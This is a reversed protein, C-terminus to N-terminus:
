GDARWRWSRRAGACAPAASSPAGPGARAGESRDPTLVPAVGREPHQSNERLVSPRTATAVAGRRAAGAPVEGRPRSEQVPHREAGGPLVADDRAATKAERRAEDMRGASSLAAIRVVQMFPNRPRHADATTIAEAFRGAMFYAMALDGGIELADRPDLRHAIEFNAISEDIRGLYLLAGARAGYANPESPNLQVAQEAAELGRQHEGVVVYIRALIAHAGAHARRDDISLAKRAHEEARRFSRRPIRSSGSRPGTTSRRPSPWTPRRTPPPSRSRASCSSGRAGTAGREAQQILDRAQLVLDYAELSEIPKANARQQELM